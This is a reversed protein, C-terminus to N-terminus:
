ENGLELLPTVRETEPTAFFLMVALDSLCAFGSQDPGARKERLVQM